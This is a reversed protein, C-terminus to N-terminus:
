GGAQKVFPMDYGDGAFCESRVTVNADGVGDGALVDVLADAAHAFEEGAQSLFVGARCSKGADFRSCIGHFECGFGKRRLFHYACQAFMVSTPYSTQEIDFDISKRGTM